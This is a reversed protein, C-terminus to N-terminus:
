RRRSGNSNSVDPVVCDLASPNDRSHQHGTDLRVTVIVAAVSAGSFYNVSLWTFNRWWLQVASQRRELGLAIAVLWSNSLFYTVTLVALPAFLAAIPTENSSYPQIGSIAFFVTASTWISVAPAAINFLARYASRGEGRIWLQIILKELVVTLTGASRGFLLVSAFVFTESVSLRATISPVKITFSGTLLTLAALVLWGPQIPNSYLSAISQFLTAFGLLVVICVYVQAATRLTSFTRM